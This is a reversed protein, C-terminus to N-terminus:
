QTPFDFTSAARIKHARRQIAVFSSRSLKRVLDAHANALVDAVAQDVARPGTASEATPARRLESVRDIADAATDLFTRLDADPIRMHHKQIAKLADDSYGPGADFRAAELTARLFHEWYFAEPVLHPHEAGTISVVCRTGDAARKGTISFTYSSRRLAHQRAHLSRFDEPSLERILEDRAFLIADAAAAEHDLALNQRLGASPSNRLARAKALARQGHSRTASVARASMTKLGNTDAAQLTAEWPAFAPVLDPFQEGSLIGTCASAPTTLQVEDRKATQETRPSAIALTAAILAATVLVIRRRLHVVSRM